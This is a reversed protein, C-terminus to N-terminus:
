RIISISHKMRNHDALGQESFTRTGKCLPCVKGLAGLNHKAAHLKDKLEQSKMDENILRIITDKYNEDFWEKTWQVQFSRAYKYTFIETCKYMLFRKDGTKQENVLEEVWKLVDNKRQWSIIQNEIKQKYNSEFDSIIPLNVLPHKIVSQFLDSQLVDNTKSSDICDRLQKIRDEKSATIEEFSKFTTGFTKNYVKIIHFKWYFKCTYSGIHHTYMDKTNFPLHTFRQAPLGYENTITLSNITNSYLCEQCLRRKFPWYVKRIRKANCLECGTEVVLNLSRKAMIKGSKVLELAITSDRGHEEEYTTYLKILDYWKPEVVKHFFKSCQDLAKLTQFYENFKALTFKQKIDDIMSNLLCSVIIELVDNPLEYTFTIKHLTCLAILDDRTKAKSRGKIGHQTLLQRLDVVKM